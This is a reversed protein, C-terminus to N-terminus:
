DDAPLDYELVVEVTGADVRRISGRGGYEDTLREMLEYCDMVAQRRETLGIDFTPPWQDDAEAM